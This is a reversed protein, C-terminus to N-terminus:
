RDAQRAFAAAIRRRVGARRAPQGDCAAPRPAFRNEALHDQLANVNSRPVPSHIAQAIALMAPVIDRARPTAVYRIEWRPAFSQKFQRLGTRTLRGQWAAPLRAILRAIQRAPGQQPLDPVASLSLRRVGARAAAAIGAAVLAQATGQPARDAIRILDLTWARGTRNFSVFGQLQDDQWALFVEAGELLAPVMRGTSFGCEGGQRATWEAAVTAMQALPLPGRAPAVQLGGAEAQRLKRRLSRAAPCEASWSQPDIVAEAAHRIVTWGAARASAATRGDVRYFCPALGQEAAARPLWETPPGGLPRGIAVLFRGARAALAGRSWSRDLWVDAGDRALAWDPDPARPLLRRLRRSDARLFAPRRPRGPQLLWLGALV